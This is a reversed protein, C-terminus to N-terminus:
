LPIPSKIIDISYDERNHILSHNEETDRSDIKRNSLRM